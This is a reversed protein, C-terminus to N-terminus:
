HGAEHVDAERGDESRRNWAKAAMIIADAKDQDDDRIYRYSLGRAGCRGCKAFAKTNGHISAKGGCFPCAKLEM